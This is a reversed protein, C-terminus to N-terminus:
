QAQQQLVTTNGENGQIQLKDPNLKKSLNFKSCIAIVSVVPGTVQVIWRFIPELALVLIKKNQCSCM